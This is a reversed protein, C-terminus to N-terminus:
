LPSPNILEKGSKLKKKEQKQNKEFVKVELKKL